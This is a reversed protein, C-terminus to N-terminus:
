RSVSVICGAGMPRINLFLFFIVTEIEKKYWVNPGGLSGAICKVVGHGYPRLILNLSTALQAIRYCPLVIARNM